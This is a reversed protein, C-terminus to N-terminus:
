PAEEYMATRVGDLVIEFLEPAGPAIGRKCQRHTKPPHKKLHTATFWRGRGCECIAFLPPNGRLAWPDRRVVTVLGFKQGAMEHLDNM